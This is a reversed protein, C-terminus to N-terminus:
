SEGRERVLHLETLQICLNSRSKHVEFWIEKGIILRYRLLIVGDKAKENRAHDFKVASARMHNDPGMQDRIDINEAKPGSTSTGQLVQLKKMRQLSRFIDNDQPTPM